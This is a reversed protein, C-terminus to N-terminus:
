RYNERPAETCTLGAVFRTEERVPTLPLYGSLLRGSQIIAARAECARCAEGPRSFRSIQFFGEGDPALHRRALSLAVIGMNYRLNIEVCPHVRRTGEDDRYLLMDIGLPGRYHGGLIERSARALSEQVTRPVGYQELEREIRAQPGVYNALYNGREGTFFKSLGLYRIDGSAEMWFELAFDIIKDLKREVMVYGQGRLAGALWEEEKRGLSNKTMLVGRGSSSWPSKIVLPHRRSLAVVEEVSSAVHPIISEPLNLEDRVLQLLASATRRSYLEKKDPHWGERGGADVPIGDLLGNVRPGWGWPRLAHFHLNKAESLTVTRSEIGLIERREELFRADAPEDLLICDEQGALYAPLYGLDRSMRAVNAPPTYGAKGHAIAMENDPNFYYLDM